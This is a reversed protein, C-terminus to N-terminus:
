TWQAAKEWCDELIAKREQKNMGGELVINLGEQIHEFSDTMLRITNEKEELVKLTLPGCNCKHDQELCYSCIGWSVTKTWSM